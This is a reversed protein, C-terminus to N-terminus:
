RVDSSKASLAGRKRGKKERIGEWLRQVRVMEDM